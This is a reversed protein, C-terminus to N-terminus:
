VSGNRRKQVQKESGASNVFGVEEEEEEEGMPEGSLGMGAVPHASRDPWPEVVVEQSVPEFSVM